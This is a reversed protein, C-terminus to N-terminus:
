SSEDVTSVTQDVCTAHFDIRFRLDGLQEEPVSAIMKFKLSRLQDMVAKNLGPSLGKLVRIGKVSGDANLSLSLVMRGAVGAKREEEPYPPPPPEAGDVNAVVMGTNDELVWSWRMEGRQSEAGPCDRSVYRILVTKTVPASPPNKYKWTKACAEAAPFLKEPGTLAKAESVNGKTDIVIRLSVNGLGSPAPCSFPKPSAQTAFNEQKAAQAENAPQASSLGCLLCFPIAILALRRSFNM